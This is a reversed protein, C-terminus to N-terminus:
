QSGVFDVIDVERDLVAEGTGLRAQLNVLPFRSGGRHFRGGPQMMAPEGRHIIPAIQGAKAKFRRFMGLRQHGYQAGLLDIVQGAARSVSRRGVVAISDTRWNWSSKM